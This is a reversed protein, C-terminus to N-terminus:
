RVFRVEHATDRDKGAFIRKGEREVDYRWAELAVAERVIESVTMGREDAMKELTEVGDGTFTISQRKGM